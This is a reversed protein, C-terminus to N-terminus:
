IELFYCIDLYYLLLFKSHFFTQLFKRSHLSVKILIYLLRKSEAAIGTDMSGIYYKGRRVRTGICPM